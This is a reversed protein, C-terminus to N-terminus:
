KEAVPTVLSPEGDIPGKEDEISQTLAVIYVVGALERSFEALTKRNRGGKEVAAGRQVTTITGGIGGSGESPLRPGRLGTLWGISGSVFVCRSAKSVPIRDRETSM